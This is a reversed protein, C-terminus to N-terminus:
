REKDVTTEFMIEYDNLRAPTQRNRTLRERQTSEVVDVPTETFVPNVENSDFKMQTQM